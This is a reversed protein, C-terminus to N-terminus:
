LGIFFYDLKGPVQIQINRYKVVDFLLHRVVSAGAAARLCARSLKFSLRHLSPFLSAFTPVTPSLPDGIPTM